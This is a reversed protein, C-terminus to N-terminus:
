YIYKNLGTAHFNYNDVKLFSNIGFDYKLGVSLVM